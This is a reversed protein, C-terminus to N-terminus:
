GEPLLGALWHMVNLLFQPNQAATAMNMGMPRREPGSVQASFMAAEGFVAIRGRGRTLVAGQWLGDARVHPTAESFKWAESPFLLVTEPALILLPTAPGLIRFAQGTFTRVSDVRESASRGTTTPHDGLTQDSRQFLFEDASCTRDTAYGNTLLIGFASALDAAAGGFPMHDAILFLSGGGVVWQHVAEIENRDFASPTPLTWDGDKNREAMANAIVLIRAPALTEGTFRKRMPDVIFGDRRLVRVFPAYRGDVTHFNSHGEDLLVKPGQGASFAAPPLSPSFDGDAVQPPAGRPALTPRCLDDGGTRSSALLPLISLVMSVVLIRM